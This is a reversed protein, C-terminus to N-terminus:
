NCWGDEALGFDMIKGSAKPLFQFPEVWAVPM